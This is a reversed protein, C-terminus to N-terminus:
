FFRQETQLETNVESLIGPWTTDGPIGSEQSKAWVITENELATGNAYIVQADDFLLMLYTTAQPAERRVYVGDVLSKATIFANHGDALLNAHAGTLMVRHNASVRLDATPCGPSLADAAIVIPALSADKRMDETSVEGIVIDRLTQYGNSRTLIMDGAALREVKEQGRLTTIMTGPTFCPAGEVGKYHNKAYHLPAEERAAHDSVYAGLWTDIAPDTSGNQTMDNSEHAYVAGDPVHSQPAGRGKAQRIAEYFADDLDYEDLTDSPESIDQATQSVVHMGPAMAIWNITQSSATPAPPGARLRVRFGTDTVQTVVPDGIPDSDSESFLVIVTDPTCDSFAVDITDQSGFADTTISGAQLFAM